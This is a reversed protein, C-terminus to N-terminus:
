RMLQNLKEAVLAGSEMAGQQSPASLHDGIAFLTESLRLNPYRSKGPTHLPLSNKIEYRAVQDWKFANSGWVKSLEARFEGEALNEITTASVLSKNLPAYNKSVKSIVLSDVLKSKKSVVLNKSNILDEDTSFYSTTSSLMTSPKLQEFLNVSEVPGAALVIYKASYKGQNTIVKNGSISEVSENLKLNRIPKALAKSFEGVGNAPLGPLSKIFSKLIEQVIDAAIRSPDTLFVGTLFPNLVKQYFGEFKKTYFDFSHSNSVNRNYVFQLFRLKEVLTGSKNSISGPAYGIKIDEDFLRIVGSIKKFELDKIVGSKEVQQYKPNIVQFGRDCIYGDIHDSRVRGGVEDSSEVLLVSKGAGELARTATLGALGAGVVICDFDM